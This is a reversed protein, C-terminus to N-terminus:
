PSVPVGSFQLALQKIQGAHYGDHMALGVLQQAMPPDGANPVRALQAPTAKKVAAILKKHYEDLLELDKQWAAETTDYNVLPWWAERIARPFAPGEANNLREILLHRGHALHLVLEWISNRDASLKKTAAEASVGELADKVSPGHWAPGNYIENLLAVTDM